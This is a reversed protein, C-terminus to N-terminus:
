DHEAEMAHTLASKERVLRSARYLSEFTGADSWWGKVIHYDATGLHVYHNSVDTIEYEGRDSPSLTDIIEFVSSDYLYVGIVAYNSKPLKPKEEVAVLRRNNDFVAVGFREPDDVEKLFLFAGPDSEDFARVQPAINDEIINDGLITCVKDNGVFKRALSLASAIGDEGEQYAYHLGNLGFEQGNGLLRLFEGAHNGGTVIMIETIGAQVLTRIPYYIMPQDYIPLLHKNTIKTLPYLRKGLGGALVIGKM